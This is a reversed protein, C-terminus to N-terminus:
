LPQEIHEYNKNAFLANKSERFGPHSVHNMFPIDEKLTVLYLLQLIQHNFIMWVYQVNLLLCLKLDGM